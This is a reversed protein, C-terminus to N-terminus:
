RVSLFVKVPEGAAPTLLIAFEGVEDAQIEYEFELSHKEFELKLQVPVRVSPSATVKVILSDEEYQRWAITQRIRFPKSKEVVILPLEGIEPEKWVQEYAARDIPRSYRDWQRFAYSIRRQTTLLASATERLWRRDLEGTMEDRVEEILPRSAGALELTRAWNTLRAAHRDNAGRLICRLANFRLDNAIRLVEEQLVDDRTLCGLASDLWEATLELDFAIDAPLESNAARSPAAVALVVGVALLRLLM